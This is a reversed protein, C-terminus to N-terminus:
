ETLPPGLKAPRGGSDVVGFLPDSQDPDYAPSPVAPPPTSVAGETSTETEATPAPAFAALYDPLKFNDPDTATGENDGLFAYLEPFSVKAVERGDCLLYNPVSRQAPYFALQGVQFRGGSLALFADSVDRSLTEINAARPPIYPDATTRTCIYTFFQSM